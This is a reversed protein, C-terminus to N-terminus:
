VEFRLKEPYGTTYDYNEVDEVTELQSVNFIHESTRNFCAKAYLEVARLMELAAECPITFKLGHVPDAWLVTEAKGSEMEKTTSYSLNDRDHRDKWLLHDNVFFANVNDSKDYQEIESIKSRKCLDLHDSYLATKDEQTPEHDYTRSLVAYMDNETRLIINLTYYQVNGRKYAAAVEKYDEKKVINVM